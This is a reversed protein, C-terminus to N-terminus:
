VFIERLLERTWGFIFKNIVSWRFIEKLYEWIFFSGSYVGGASRKGTNGVSFSGAFMGDYTRKRMSGVSFSGAFM